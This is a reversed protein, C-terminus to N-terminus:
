KKPKKKTNITAYAVAQIATLPCFLSRQKGLSDRELWRAGTAPVLEEQGGALRVGATVDGQKLESARVYEYSDLEFSEDAAARERHQLTGDQFIPQTIAAGLDWFGDWSAPWRL